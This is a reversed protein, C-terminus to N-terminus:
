LYDVVLVGLVLVVVVLSVAAAVFPVAAVPLSGQVIDVIVARHRRRGLGAVTVVGLLAALVVGAMVIPALLVIDLLRLGVIRAVIRVIRVAHRVVLLPWIGLM